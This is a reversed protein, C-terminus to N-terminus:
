VVIKGGNDTVWKKYQSPTGQTLKGNAMKKLKDQTTVLMKNWTRNLVFASKIKTDYILVENWSTEMGDVTLNDIVNQKHKLLLKNQLDIFDRIFESEFKNSIKESEADLEKWPTEDYEKGKLKKLAKRIQNSYGDYDLKAKKMAPKLIDERGFVKQPPIWRRGTKDPTSMMDDVSRALLFGEVHFAIGGKTQIGKGKGLPSGAKTSSFTSLSKKKGVVNKLKDFRDEDTIHFTSVRQKGIVKNMITPYVAVENGAMIKQITPDTWQPFWTHEGKHKLWKGGGLGQVGIELLLDMLKIMVLEM